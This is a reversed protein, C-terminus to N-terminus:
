GAPSLGDVANAALSEDVWPYLLKEEHAAHARVRDILSEADGLSLSHLDIRVGLVDLNKRLEDHESLLEAAAKADVARFAPFVGTEETQMHARLACDFTDWQARVDAWDGDRYAAILSAYVAELQEHDHRLVQGLRGYPEVLESQGSKELADLGKSAREREGLDGRTVGIADDLARDRAAARTEDNELATGALMGVGTGLAAGLAAGVPGAVAGIAAGGITGTLTAAELLTHEGHRRESSSESPEVAATGNSRKAGRETLAMAPPMPRVVLVPRDMRDVIRAATTGLVRSLIGYKHAGIRKM